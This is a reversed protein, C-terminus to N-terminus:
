ANISSRVNQFVASAQEDPVASYQDYGYNTILAKAQKLKNVDTKCLNKLEVILQATNTVVVPSDVSPSEEVVQSEVAPSRETVKQLEERIIQRIFERLNEEISV